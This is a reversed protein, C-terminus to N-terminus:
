KDTEAIKSALAQELMAFQTDIGARLASDMRAFEAQFAELHQALQEQEAYARRDAAEQECVLKRLDALIQQEGTAITNSQLFEDKSEEVEQPKTQEGCWEGEVKHQNICQCTKQKWATIDAQSRCLALKSLSKALVDKELIKQFREVTLM